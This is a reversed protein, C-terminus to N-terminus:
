TLDRLSVRGLLHEPGTGVAATVQAILDEGIEILLKPAERGQFWAGPNDGRDVSIALGRDTRQIQVRLEIAEVIGKMLVDVKQTPTGVAAWVRAPEVEVEIQQGPGLNVQCAARAFGEAQSM